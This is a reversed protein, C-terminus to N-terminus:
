LTMVLLMQKQLPVEKRSRPHHKLSSTWQLQLFSNELALQAKMLSMTRKPMMEWITLSMVPRMTVMVWITEQQMVMFQMPITMQTGDGVMSEDDGNGPNTTVDGATSSITTVDGVISSVNVILSCNELDTTSVDESKETEGVYSYTNHHTKGFVFSVDESTTLSESMTQKAVWENVKRKKLPVTSFLTNHMLEKLINTSTINEFPFDKRIAGSSDVGVQTAM